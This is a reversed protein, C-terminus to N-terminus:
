DGTVVLRVVREGGSPDHGVISYDGPRAVLPQPQRTCELERLVKGNADRLEVPPCCLPLAVLQRSRIRIPGSPLRSPGLELKMPVHLSIDDVEQRTSACGVLMVVMITLMFRRNRSMAEPPTRM